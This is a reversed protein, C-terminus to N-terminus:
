NFLTFKMQYNILPTGAVRQYSFSDFHGEYLNDDFAIIVSKPKYLDSDATIESWKDKEKRNKRAEKISADEPPIPTSSWAYINELKEIGKMGSFGTTGTLVLTDNGWHHYVIGDKTAVKTKFKNVSLNSPNIYMPMEDYKDGKFYGITMIKKGYAVKNKALRTM